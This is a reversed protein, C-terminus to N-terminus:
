ADKTGKTTGNMDVKRLSKVIGDQLRAPRLPSTLLADETDEWEEAVSKLSDAEDYLQEWELWLANGHDALWDYLNDLTELVEEKLRREHGRREMWLPVALCFAGALAYVDKLPDNWGKYDQLRLPWSPRDLASNVLDKLWGKRWEKPVQSKWLARRREYRRGWPWESPYPLRTTLPPLAKEWAPPLSEALEARFDNCYGALQNNNDLMRQNILLLDVVKAVSLAALQCAERRSEERTKANSKNKSKAAKSLCTICLDSGDRPPCSRCDTCIGLDRLEVRAEEAKQAKKNRGFSKM